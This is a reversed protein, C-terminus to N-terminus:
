GARGRDEEPEPPLGLSGARFSLGLSLVVHSVPGFDSGDSRSLPSSLAIMDLLEVRVAVPGSGLDTGLGLVMAARTAPNEPYPFGAVVGADTGLDYRIAGVGLVAYPQFFQGARPRRLRAVLDLDAAQLDFGVDPSEELETSTLGAHVRAGFRGFWLELNGGYFGGPALTVAPDDDTMSGYAASGLYGTLAVRYDQAAGVAPWLLWILAPVM